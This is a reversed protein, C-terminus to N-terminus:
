ETTDGNEWRVTYKVAGGDTITQDLIKLVEGRSPTTHDNPSLEDMNVQGNSSAPLVPHEQPDVDM